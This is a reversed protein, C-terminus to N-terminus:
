LLEVRFNITNEKVNQVIEFNIDEAGKIINSKATEYNLKSM